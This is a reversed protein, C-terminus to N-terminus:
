IHELVSIIKQFIREDEFFKTIIEHTYRDNIQEKTKIDESGKMRSVLYDFYEIGQQIKQSDGQNFHLSAGGSSAVWFNTSDSQSLAKGMKAMRSIIYKSVQIFDKQTEELSFYLTPGNFVHSIIKLSREDPFVRQLDNPWIIIKNSHEDFRAEFGKKQYLSVFTQEISGSQYVDQTDKEGKKHLRYKKVLLQCLELVTKNLPIKYTERMKDDKYRTYIETIAYGDKIGLTISGDLWEDKKDKKFRFTVGNNHWDFEWNSTKYRGSGSDGRKNSLDNNWRSTIANDEIFGKKAFYNVILRALLVPDQLFVNGVGRKYHGKNTELLIM